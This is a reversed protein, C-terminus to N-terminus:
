SLPGIRFVMSAMASLGLILLLVAVIMTYSVPFMSEGHILGETKMEDRLYRLGRMFQLQYLIGVVLM